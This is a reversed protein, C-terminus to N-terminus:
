ASVRGVPNLRFAPIGLAAAAADVHISIVRPNHIEILSTYLFGSKIASLDPEMARRRFRYPVERGVKCGFHKAFAKENFTKGSGKPGYIVVSVGNM